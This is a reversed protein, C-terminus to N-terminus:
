SLVEQWETVTEGKSKWEDAEVSDSTIRIGGYAPIQWVRRPEPKIRYCHMSSNMDPGFEDPVDRWGHTSKTQLKRGQAKAAYIEALAAAQQRIKEPTM